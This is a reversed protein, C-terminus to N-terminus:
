TSAALTTVLERVLEAPRTTVQEWTALVLRYGHRAPVSWKEHDREYDAAADHGRRGNTELIVRERPFGFDFLCRRGNWELPLERLFGRIGAGVLLRRTKVELTSRSPHRPDLEDLLRRM